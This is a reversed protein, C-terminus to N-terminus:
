LMKDDACMYFLDPSTESINTILRV